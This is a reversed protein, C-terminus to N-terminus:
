GPHYFEILPGVACGAVRVIVGGAPIWRLTEYLRFLFVGPPVIINTAGIAITRNFKGPSDGRYGLSPGRSPSIGWRVASVTFFRTWSGSAM